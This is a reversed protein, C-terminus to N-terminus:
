IVLAANQRPFNIKYDFRGKLKAEEYHKKCIVVNLTGKPAEDKSICVIAYTAGDCSGIQCTNPLGWDTALCRAFVGATEPDAIVKIVKM